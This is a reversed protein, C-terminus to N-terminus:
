GDFGLLGERLRGRRAVTLADSYPTLAEDADAVLKRAVPDEDILALSAATFLKLPLNAPIVFDRRDKADRNLLLYERLARRTDFARLREAVRAVDVALLQATEQVTRNPVVADLRFSQCAPPHHITGPTGSMVSQGVDGLVFPVDWLYAVCEPSVVGWQVDFTERRSLLAIVHHVESTRRVWASPGVADFGEPLLVAQIGEDVIRRLAAARRLTEETM